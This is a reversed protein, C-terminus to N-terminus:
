WHFVGGYAKSNHNRLQFCDTFSSDSDTQTVYPLASATLPSTWTWILQITTPAGRNLHAHAHTLRMPLTAPDEGFVYVFEGRMM